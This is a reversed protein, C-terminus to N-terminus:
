EIILLKSIVHNNTMLKLIYTGSILHTNISNKGVNLKRSRIVKKGDIQWIEAVAPFDININIFGSSPNPYLDLTLQNEITSVGDKVTAKIPYRIECSSYDYNVQWEFFYPIVGPNKVSEGIKLYGSIVKDFGIFKDSYSFQPDETGLELINRDQNTTLEYNGPQFVHDFSIVNKGAIFDNTISKILTHGKWLEITRIGSIQTRLSLTSLYIPGHVKFALTDNGVFQDDFSSNLPVPAL